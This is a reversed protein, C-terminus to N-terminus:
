GDKQGDVMWDKKFEKLEALSASICPQGSGQKSDTHPLFCFEGCESFALCAHTCFITGESGSCKTASILPPSWLRLVKPVGQLPHIPNPAANSLHLPIPSDPSKFGRGSPVATLVLFSFTCLPWALTYNWLSPQQPPSPALSPPVAKAPSYM